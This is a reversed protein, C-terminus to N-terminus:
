FNLSLTQGIRKMESIIIQGVRFHFICHLYIRLPDPGFDAAITLNPANEFRGAIGASGLLPQLLAQLAGCGLATWFPDNLGFAMELQLLEIRQLLHDLIRLGSQLRFLLQARDRPRRQLLEALKELLRPFPFSLYPGLGISLESELQSDRWLLRLDVSFELCFFLVLVSLLFLSLLM